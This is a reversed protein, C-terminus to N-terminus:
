AVLIHGPSIDVLLLRCLASARSHLCSLRLVGRQVLQSSCYDCITAPEACPAASSVMARPWHVVDRCRGQAVGEMGRGIWGMM